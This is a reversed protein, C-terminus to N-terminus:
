ATLSKYLAILRARGSSDYRFGPGRLAYGSLLTDDAEVHISKQDIGFMDALEESKKLADKRAAEDGLAVVVRESHTRRNVEREYESVIRPLLQEHGRHKLVARLRELLGAAETRPHETQYAILAQAYNKAQM